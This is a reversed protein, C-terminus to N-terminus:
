YVWLDLNVASNSILTVFKTPDTQTNATCVFAFADMRTPFYGAWARGLGHPIDLANVGDLHVSSVPLGNVIPCSTAAQVARRANEQIADAARSGTIERAFGVKRPQAGSSM